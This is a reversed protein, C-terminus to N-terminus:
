LFYLELHPMIILFRFYTCGERMIQIKILFHSMKKILIFKIVNTIMPIGCIFSLLVNVASFLEKTYRFDFYPRILPMYEDIIATTIAEAAVM